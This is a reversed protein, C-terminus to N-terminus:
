RSFKLSAVAEILVPAFLTKQQIILLGNKSLELIALIAVIVGARGEELSFLQNFRLTPSQKLQQKIRQMRAKISLPEKIIQHHQYLSQRAMISEMADVLAQLPIDPTHIVPKLKPTTVHAIFTDRGVVSYQNLDTAAQKIQAYTQLQQILENKPDTDNNDSHSRPLLMRSKIELLLAAMVLYESALDLQLEKMMEIYVLYQQILPTMAIDIVDLNQQKILYLLLDLPGEFANLFVSMAEPPIHLDKPLQTIAQGAVIAVPNTQHVTPLNDLNIETM